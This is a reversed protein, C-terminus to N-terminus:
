KKRMYSGGNIYVGNYLDAANCENNMRDKDDNLEIIVHRKEHHDQQIEKNENNNVNKNMFVSSSDLCGVNVQENAINADSIINSM